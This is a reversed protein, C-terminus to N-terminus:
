TSSAACTARRAGRARARARRQRERRRADRVRLHHLRAAGERSLPQVRRDARAAPVQPQAAGARRAARREARAAVRRAGGPMRRAPPRDPVVGSTSVTVRRRSLGYANDDLMLRLAPMVNDFNLLPEGMGMMVVNTIPRARDVRRQAGDGPRRNALWLQGVIEAAGLNRNFGQKGTSCFACDLACGAQARCACRAATPRPSSCRRSRTRTASTSCGSARATPRPRTASSAPARSARADRALTERLAKALDSMADFDAVGLQHIWRQVQSPASRSRARAAFLARARPALRPRASQENLPVDADASRLRESAAFSIPSRASATEPADSGHVANADISDAFDARITGPGGEEPRHRGDARPEERDRQRGRAGAGAGAGLDHVPGPRQLVAPRSAGRLLGRGRRSVPADHARRDRQLGATRSARSIQGIVNKAVADPKIISLTRELAM